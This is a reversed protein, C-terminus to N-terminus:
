LFHFVRSSSYRNRMSFKRSELVTKAERCDMEYMKLFSASRCMIYSLKGGMTSEGECSLGCWGCM